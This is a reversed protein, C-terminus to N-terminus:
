KKFFQVSQKNTQQHKKGRGNIKGGSIIIDEGAINIDDDYVWLGTM